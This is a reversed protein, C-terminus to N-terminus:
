IQKYWNVKATTPLGPGARRETISYVYNLDTTTYTISEQDGTSVNIVINGATDVSLIPPTAIPQGADFAKGAYLDQFLVAKWSDMDTSSLDIRAVDDDVNRRTILLADRVGCGIQIVNVR